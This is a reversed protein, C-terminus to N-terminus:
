GAGPLVTTSTDASPNGPNGEDPRGGCGALLGLSAVLALSAIAIRTRHRM